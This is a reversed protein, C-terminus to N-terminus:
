EAGGEYAGISPPTLYCEGDLDGLLESMTSGAGIAPSTPALHYDGGPGDVFGPDSGVVGATETVPLIPASNGPQDYAYWLNNQFTFSAADTGGGVNVHTSIASRDYHVLNNVFRGNSSPLFEYGGSTVTEQLIRAVWNEPAVITNNAALCDVCGVFALPAVSGEILNAIVHIRRAEANPASTSLPPRFFEFGTSGGLNIARAGGDTIQNAVITIDTSGGKCQVANGSAAMDSFRNGAIVGDHCGVHDIGSGSMGGGCRAFSSTLVWYDNVGSLKLCDQNGNSGIDHIDLDRFVLYRTANENAYDGGDDVSLGNASADRVELDHVVVYRARVLQMANGGGQLVPKNEGEAGGIWIPANETGALDAIFTGGPYTGEHVVIATGPQAVQAARQITAFPAGSSGDGTTDSGTTAVHRQTTPVKGAEFTPYDFCSGSPGGGTGGGGASSTSASEGGTGAGGQASGAGSGPGTSSSSSAGGSGSTDDGCAGLGGVLGVALGISSLGFVVSSSFRQM